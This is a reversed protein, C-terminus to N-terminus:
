NLSYTSSSANTPSPHTNLYTPFYSYASLLVSIFLSFSALYIMFCLFASVLLGFCCVLLIVRAIGEFIGGCMSLGHSILEFGGYLLIGGSSWGIWLCCRFYLEFQFVNMFEDYIFTLYYMLNIVLIHLMLNIIQISM